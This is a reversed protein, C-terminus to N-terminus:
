IHMDMGKKKKKALKGITNATHVGVNFLKMILYTSIDGSMESAEAAAEEIDKSFADPESDDNIVKYIYAILKKADDITEATSSMFAAPISILPNSDIDDMQEALIVNKSLREMREYEKSRINIDGYEEIDSLYDLVAKRKEGKIGLGSLMKEDSIASGTAYARELALLALDYTNGIDDRVKDIPIDKEEKVPATEGVLDNLENMIDDTSDDRNSLTRYIPVAKEKNGEKVYLRARSLLSPADFPDASLASDLSKGAAAYEGDELQMTGM